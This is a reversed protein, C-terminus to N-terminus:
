EPLVERVHVCGIPIGHMCAHTGAIVKGNEGTVIWWERPKPPEPKIRYEWASFNFQIPPKAPSWELMQAETMREGTEIDALVEPPQKSFLKACAIGDKTARVEIEKGDRHATIVAIM